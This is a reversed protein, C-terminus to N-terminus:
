STVWEEGATGVSVRATVVAAGHADFLGAPLLM